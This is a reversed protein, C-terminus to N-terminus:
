FAPTLLGSLYAIWSPALLTAIAAATWFSGFPLATQMTARRFVMLGVGALAGGWIAALTVGVAMPYGFLAGIVFALKVDGFGLWRGRSYFFLLALLSSLLVGTALANVLQDPRYYAIRTVVLLALPYVIADPLMHHVLDFFFLGVLGFLVVLGLLSWMTAVGSVIVATALVAATTLELVPYLTSIPGGCYRCKGRLWVWSALPVLDYWALVHMCNPCHSRGAAAGRWHPWRGILVSLFSGLMLGIGAALIAEM